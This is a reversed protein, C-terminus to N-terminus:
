GEWLNFQDISQFIIDIIYLHYEPKVMYKVLNCIYTLRDFSRGELKFYSFGKEKYINFIEEPEIRTSIKEPYLNNNIIPCTRVNYALGYNLSFLSNLRYHESRNPCAPPCIANVLFETKNKQKPTLKDLFDNAHNLNYDLCILFYDENDLEDKADEKNTLCKTTSSIIKYKPYNQRIYDELISSNVVIENMEDECTTLVINNFRDYCDEKEILKNTFVFRMPVKYKINYLFKLREIEELTAHQYSNFIRGGDWTCFQFNGYVAGISINEYFM